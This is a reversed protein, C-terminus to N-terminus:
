EKEQMYELHELAHGSVEDLTDLNSDLEENIPTYDQM